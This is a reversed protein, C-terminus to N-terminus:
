LGEWLNLSDLTQQDMKVCDNLDKVPIGAATKLGAFSYADVVANVSELQSQWRAAATYGQGNSDIHPFIRVHKAAFNELAERHIRLGAGLMAVPLLDKRNTATIFHFAALLDPGGECLLITNFSAANLIGLPWAAQSGPLTWAKKEDIHAWTKGDLRRAQFNRATSDSIVWAIHGKLDAFSLVGADQAMSLGEVSLGRLRGLSQIEGSTGSRLQPLYLTRKPPLTHTSTFNSEPTAIGSAAFRLFERCAAIRDLGRAKQLFTVANGGEGTSFDNWLMGDSSVSFSPNSDERWPAHCSRAPSGPLNLRKWLEPIRLGSKAEVITM